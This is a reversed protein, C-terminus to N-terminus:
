VTTIRDRTYKIAYRLVETNSNIGTVQKLTKFVAEDEDKLELSIITSM